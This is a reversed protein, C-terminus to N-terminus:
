ASHDRIGYFVLVGIAWALTSCLLVLFIMQLRKPYLSDEPMHPEVFTAIYRAQREARM